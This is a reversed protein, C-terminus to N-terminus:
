LGRGGIWKREDPAFRLVLPKIQNCPELGALQEADALTASRGGQWVGVGRMTLKDFCAGHQHLAGFLSQMFSARAEVPEAHPYITTQLFAPLWLHFGRLAIVTGNEVGEHRAEVERMSLKDFCASHQHLAGFLLPNCSHLAHKSPSLMLTFQQKCSLLSGS